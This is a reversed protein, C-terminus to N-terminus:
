CSVYPSEIQVSIKRLRKADAQPVERIRHQDDTQM